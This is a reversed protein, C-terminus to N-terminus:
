TEYPHLQKPPSDRCAIRCGLVQDCLMQYYTMIEYWYSTANELPNWRLVFRNISKPLVQDYEGDLPTEGIIAGDIALHYPYPRSIIAGELHLTCKRNISSM